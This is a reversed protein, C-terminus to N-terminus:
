KHTRVNFHKGHVEESVRRRAGSSVEQRWGRVLDRHPLPSWRRASLAVAGGAFGHHSTHYRDLASPSGWCGKRWRRSMPWSMQSSSADEVSKEVGWGGDVRSWYGKRWRRLLMWNM